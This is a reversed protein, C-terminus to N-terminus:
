EKKKTVFAVIEELQLGGDGNTDAESLGKRMNPGMEDVSLLGDKNKDNSAFMKAIAQYQESNSEPTGIEPAPAAPEASAEPAAEVVTPAPPPGDPTPEAFDDAENDYMERDVDAAATSEASSDDSSDAAAPAALNEYSAAPATAEEAVPAGVDVGEGDVVVTTESEIAEFTYKDQQFFIEEGKFPKYSVYLKHKRFPLGSQWAFVDVKSTGAEFTESPEFGVINRIEEKTFMAAGDSMLQLNRAEIAEYAKDVEARAVKFDYALAALMVGLLGLLILQRKNSKPPAAAQKASGSAGAVAAGVAGRAATGAAAAGSEVSAVGEQVTETIAADVEEAVDSARDAISAAADGAAQQADDPM